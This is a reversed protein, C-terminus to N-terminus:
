LYFDETLNNYWESRQGGAVNLVGEESMLARTGGLCFALLCRKPKKREVTKVMCSRVLRFGVVYGEAVVKEEVETPVIVSFVGGVALMRKAGAFLDAFPLSDSHRALTRREDPNKLSDVFYPPNSVIADYPLAQYDQLKAHLIRVRGAFPSAQVNEDAEECAVEDIDIGDVTADPFRQAMMLAILGTGCGVDLIRGGGEAWAGLLVGDTGVKMASRDQRIAFKKFRFSTMIIQRRKWIYRCFLGNIKYKERFFAGM